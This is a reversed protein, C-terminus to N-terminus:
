QSAAQTRDEGGGVRVMIAVACEQGIAAILREIQPGPAAAFVLTAQEPSVRMHELRAQLRLINDSM